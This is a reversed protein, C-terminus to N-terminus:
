FDSERFLSIFTNPPTVWDLKKPHRAIYDDFAAIVRQAEAAKDVPVPISFDRHNYYDNRASDLHSRIRIKLLNYSYRCDTVMMVKSLLPKRITGADDTFWLDLSTIRVTAAGQPTTSLEFEFAYKRWEAASYEWSGLTAAKARAAVYAKGYLIRNKVIVFLYVLGVLAIMLVTFTLFSSVLDKPPAAFILSLM